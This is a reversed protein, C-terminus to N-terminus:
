HPLMRRHDGGNTGADLIRQGGCALRRHEVRHQQHRRPEQEQWQGVPRQPEAAEVGAAYRAAAGRDDHAVVDAEDVRQQDAHGDARSPGVHHGLALQEPRLRKGPPDAPGAPERHFAARGVALRQAGGALEELVALAQQHEGFAPDAALADHTRPERSGAREGELGASVGEVEVYTQFGPPYMVEVTPTWVLDTGAAQLLALDRDTDRPYTALDESPGFQTPNVFISVVVSACEERAQRVLSLHGEHLFGMTPVLGVPGALNAREAWLEDLTTVTKM